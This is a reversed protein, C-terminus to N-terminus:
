RCKVNKYVVRVCDGALANVTLRNKHLYIYSKYAM